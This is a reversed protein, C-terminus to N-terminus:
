LWPTGAVSLKAVMIGAVAELDQQSILRKWRSRGPDRWSGFAPEPSDPHGKSLQYLSTYHTVPHFLIFCSSVPFCHSFNMQLGVKIM